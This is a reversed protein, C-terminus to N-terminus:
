GNIFVILLDMWLQHFNVMLIFVIEEKKCEEVVSIDAKFRKGNNKNKKRFNTNNKKSYYINITELTKKPGKPLLIISYTHDKHVGLLVNPYIALYEAPNQWQKSLNKFNPFKTKKQTM